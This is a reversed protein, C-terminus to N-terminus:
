PTYILTFPTYVSHNLHTYTSPCDIATHCDTLRHTLAPKEKLVVLLERMIYVCRGEFIAMLGLEFGLVNEVSKIKTNLM